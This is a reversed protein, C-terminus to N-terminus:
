MESLACHFLHKPNCNRPKITDQVMKELYSFLFYIFDETMQGRSNMKLFASTVMLHKLKISRLEISLLHSGFVFLIRVLSQLVRLSRM